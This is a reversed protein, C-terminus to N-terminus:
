LASRRISDIEVIRLKSPPSEIVNVLTRIMQGITVLGIARAKEKLAPILAAIAYLPLLLVPWWHGPGLVYWPRIFSCNLSKSLCYAEGEKRVERYEKMVNTEAMAVSIYVFHSAMAASAADASAKLSQLDIQRFLEKKRPSPHPVGLLQVFVAGHPIQDRFTAPAFPNAIVPRAGQPLKNESGKRVLAMVEHGRGVLSKILRKGIYGTGGTIFVTNMRFLSRSRGLYVEAEEGEPCAKVM